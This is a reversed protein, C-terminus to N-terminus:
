LGWDHMIHIPRYYRTLWMTSVLNEIKMAKKYDNIIIKFWGIVLDIM